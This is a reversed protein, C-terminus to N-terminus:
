DAGLDSKRPVKLAFLMDVLVIAAGALFTVEHGFLAWAYGGAVPVIVAIVHNATMGFSLCGTLDEPTAIKTLYSRLAISSGFLMNDVLYFAILLPLFQITAYGAFIVVLVASCGVLIAKEGWRDSLDGLWRNTFITIASNTLMIASIWTISLDHNKVLLFIAFTTFIHRRCGRLLSLTYYLWYKKKLTVKRKESIGRNSPLAVALYLGVLLVVGGILYFTISYDLFLTLGLVLGAGGLGAMSEWSRLRGQARGLEHYEALRLLQSSNTPEFYHFGISMLVTACGLMFLSTSAGCLILGVGVIIISLSAIRSETLWLALAGAGFALLGPVERVAQIASVGVPSADFAEVAFNNFMIRWAYFGIWVTVSSLIITKYSVREIGLAM